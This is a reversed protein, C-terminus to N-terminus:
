IRQWVMEHSVHDKKSSYALAKFEELLDDNSKATQKTRRFTVSLGEGSM